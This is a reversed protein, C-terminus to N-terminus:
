GQEFEPKDDKKEEKQSYPFVDLITTESIAAVEYDGMTGKMGDEFNKLADSINGAQVLINTSTRKETQTKDDFTIFVCKVKYWKDADDLDCPFMESYRARKINDVDLPGNSCYPTIEEIIRAEAETFNLADVLYTQTVKQPLDKGDVQKELKVKCEFWGNIVM